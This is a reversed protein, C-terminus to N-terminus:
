MKIWTGGQYGWFGVSTFTGNTNSTFVIQGEAPTIASAETATIPRLKVSGDGALTLSEVISGSLKTSIIFSSTEAGNTVTTLKTSLRSAEISVNSGNEINYKIYEGVGASTTSSSTRVLVMVPLETNTSTNEIDLSAALPTAGTGSGTIATPGVASLGITGGEARMATGSSSYGWVAYGAATNSVELSSTSSNSIFKGMSTGSASNDVVNLRTATYSSSIGIGVVGSGYVSMITSSAGANFVGNIDLQSTRSAHTATTWKYIIQNATQLSGTSTRTKFDISGGIGAAGVGGTVERAIEMIPIVSNTVDSKAEVRAGIGVNTGNTAAAYLGYGVDTTQAYVGYAISVGHVGITQGSSGYVGTSQTSFGYLGIGANAIGEIANGSSANTNNVVFVGEPTATGTINLTFTSANLYRDDLLTAPTGVTGFLRVNTATPATTLGDDATVGGASAALSRSAERWNTGDFLIELVDNAAAQFDTAGALIITATGAGGATNNKVLPAGSFVLFVSASGAQWGATTIATIQTAGSVLQVNGRGLTLNNAAVIIATDTEHRGNGIQFNSGYYLSDIRKITGPTVETVKTKDYAVSNLKVTGDQGGLNRTLVDAGSASANTIRANIVTLNGGEGHVVGDITGTARDEIMDAKVTLMGLNSSVVVCDSNASIRQANIYINPSLGQAWVAWELQAYIEDADIYISDTATSSGVEIIYEAHLPNQSFIKKSHLVFSACNNIWVPVGFEGAEIFDIDGYFNRGQIWLNGLFSNAYMYNATIKTRANSSSSTNITSGSASTISDAVMEVTSAATQYLVKQSSRATFTWHEGWIKSYCVTTSDTFIAGNAVSTTLRLDGKGIFHYNVSKALNIPATEEYVGPYVVIVDGPFAAALAAKITLFHLDIRQRQGTADNGAKSVFLTNAVNIVQGNTITYNNVTITDCSGAENCIIITTDNYINIVTPNTIDVTFTDCVGNLDCVRFSTDSIIEVISTSAIVSGVGLNGDTDLPIVAKNAVGDNRTNPYGPFQIDKNLNFHAIFTTDMADSTVNSGVASQGFLSVAKNSLGGTHLLIGTSRSNYDDYKVNGQLSAATINTSLFYGRNPGLIGEKYSPSTVTTDYAYNIGMRVTNDYISTGAQASGQSLFSAIGSGGQVYQRQYFRYPYDWLTGGSWQMYFGSVDAFTPHLLYSNTNPDASGYEYINENPFRRLWNQLIFIAQQNIIITDCSALSDCVVISSDTLFSITSINTISTSISITDCTGDGKCIIVTSDNLISISTSVSDFFNNIIDGVNTGSLQLVWATATSNRLWISNNSSTYIQAGPYYKIKKGTAFLNAATTDTFKGNVLGGKGQLVNTVVITNVANGVSQKIPFSSDAPIPNQAKAFVFTILCFLIISLKKM